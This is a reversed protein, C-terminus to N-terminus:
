AEHTICRVSSQDVFSALEDHGTRRRLEGMLTRGLALSAIVQM